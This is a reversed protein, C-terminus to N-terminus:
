FQTLIAGNCGISNRAPDNQKAKTIIEIDSPEIIIIFYKLILFLISRKTPAVHINIVSVQHLLLRLKKICKNVGDSRVGSHYKRTPKIKVGRAISIQSYTIVSKKHFLCLFNTKIIYEITPM